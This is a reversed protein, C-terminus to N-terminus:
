RQVDGLGLSQLKTSPHLSEVSQPHSSTKFAVSPPQISDLMYALLGPPSDCLAYAATQPRKSAIRTSSSARTATSLAPAGGSGAQTLEEPTYGFTSRQLVAYILKAIRYKLWVLASIELRPAPVEPNVTHIAICSEPHALALARCIGFGWETGHCIYQHYGLDAMMENFIDATAQMNNATEAVPDSFGFGPISPAVVHFSQVNEDGRPPTAIPNSLADIVKSVAIFSEPWGHVFLLPIAAPSQSRKHVFHLRTGNIAIRFQPLTDNYFTEQARWEYKEMWHDILPELDLKSVGADNRQPANRADRPLRTLELKRKTLDLYKHSVHMRYPM